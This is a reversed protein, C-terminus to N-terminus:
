MQNNRKLYETRSYTGMSKAFEKIEEFNRTFELFRNQLDALKDNSLEEILPTKPLKTKVSFERQNGKFTM